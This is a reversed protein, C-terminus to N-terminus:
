RDNRLQLESVPPEDVHLSPPDNGEDDLESGWLELLPALKTVIHLEKGAPLIEIGELISTLPLNQEQQLTILSRIGEIFMRASMAQLESDFLAVATLTVGDQSSFLIDDPFPVEVPLASRIRAGIKMHGFIVDDSMPPTDEPPPPKDIFFAELARREGVAMHSGDLIIFGFPDRADSEYYITSWDTNMAFLGAKGESMASRIAPLIVDKEFDGQAIIVFSPREDKGGLTGFVTLLGIANQNKLLASILEAAVGSRSAVIRDIGERLDPHSLAKHVDVTADFESDKPIWRALRAFKVGTPMSADYGPKKFIDRTDKLTLALFGIAAIGLVVAGIRIAHRRM